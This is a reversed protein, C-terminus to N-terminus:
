GSSSPTASQVRSGDRLAARMLGLFLHAAPSPTEGRLTYVGHSRRAAPDELRIAEVRDGSGVCLRPAVAIGLGAAVYYRVMGWGDTRVAVNLAEALRRWDPETLWHGYAHTPPVIAPQDRLEDVSVSERGGLPHGQPAILVLTDSLMPEYCYPTAHPEQGGIVFEVERNALLRLGDTVAANRLRLRVEPHLRRLEMVVPGLLFDAVLPEVAVTLTTSLLKNWRDALVGGLNDM